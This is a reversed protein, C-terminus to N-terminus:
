PLTRTIKLTLDRNDEFDDNKFFHKMASHLPSPHDAFSTKVGDEIVVKNIDDFAIIQDDETIFLSVRNKSHHQWSSNIIIQVGNQYCYSLNSGIGKTPDMSFEDWHFQYTTRNEFLYYLISLDHSALDLISGADTRAPGNNTRNLIIQKIKKGRLIKKLHQVCPNFTYTWDVFLLNHRTEFRHYIEVATVLEPVLPKECWVKKERFNEAIHFLTSEHSSFPTALFYADYSDDFLHYNELVQDVVTVDSYGLELLNKHLIKGWYGYGVLCIKTRKM